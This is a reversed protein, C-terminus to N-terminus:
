AGRSKVQGIHDASHEVILQAIVLGCSTSKAATAAAQSSRERLRILQRSIATGFKCDVMAFFASSNGVCQVGGSRELVEGDHITRPGPQNECDQWILMVRACGLARRM